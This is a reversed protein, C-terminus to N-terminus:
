IVYFAVIDIFKGQLVNITATIAKVIRLVRFLSQPSNKRPVYLAFNHRPSNFQQRTGVVLLLLITRAVDLYTMNLSAFRLRFMGRFPVKHFPRRLAKTLALPGSSTNGCRSRKISPERRAINSITLLRGLRATAVIDSHPFVEGGGRWGRYHKSITQLRSTYKLHVLKPPRLQLHNYLATKLTLVKTFVGVAGSGRGGM